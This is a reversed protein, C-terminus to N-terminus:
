KKYSAIMYEALEICEEMVYPIDKYTPHQDDPEQELIRTLIKIEISTNLPKIDFIHACDFGIFVSNSTEGTLLASLDIKGKFTIAGHVSKGEESLIYNIDSYTKNLWDHDEYLQVYGCWAGSANRVMVCWRDKYRFLMFPINMEKEYGQIEVM